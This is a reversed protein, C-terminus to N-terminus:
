LEARIVPDGVAARGNEVPAVKKFDASNCILVPTVTDYGADTIAKLDAELLLEGKRVEQGEEVYTFFHEGRLNVTDIGVHILVEAGEKTTIGIAHKTPFLSSVTGDAPAYFKGDLPKIAMGKGLIEDRFTPDPLTKLSVCEGAAPSAIVAEKKKFGNKWFGM